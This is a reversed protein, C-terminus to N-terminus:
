ELTDDAAHRPDREAVREDAVIRQTQRGPIYPGTLLTLRRRLARRLPKLEPDRWMRAALGARLEQPACRLSTELYVFSTELDDGARAYFCALNFRARYSLRRQEAITTVLLQAAAAAIDPEAGNALDLLQMVTARRGAMADRRTEEPLLSEEIQRPRWLVIGGVLILACPEATEQLFQALRREERRHRVSQIKRLRSTQNQGLELLTLTARGATAAGVSVAAQRHRIAADGQEKEDRRAAAAHNAALSYSTQYWILRREVQCRLLEHAFPRIVLGLPRESV